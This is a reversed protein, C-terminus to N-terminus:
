IVTCDMLNNKVYAWEFDRLRTHLAFDGPGPHQSISTKLPDLKKRMSFVAEPYVQRASIAMSLRYSAGRYQEEWEKYL